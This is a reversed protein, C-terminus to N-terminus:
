NNYQHYQNFIMHKGCSRWLCQLHWAIFVRNTRKASEDLLVQAVPRRSYRLADGKTKRSIEKLTQSAFSFLMNVSDLKRILASPAAVATSSTISYRM